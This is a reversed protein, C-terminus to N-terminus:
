PISPSITMPPSPETWPAAAKDLRPMGVTVMGPVMSLSICPVSSVMPWSVATLATTPATLRIRSVADAWSLAAMISTIPRNAPFIARSAPIAQPASYMRTGSTGKLRSFSALLRIPCIFSPLVFLMMIQASPASSPLAKPSQSFSRVFISIQVVMRPNIWLPPRGLALSLM